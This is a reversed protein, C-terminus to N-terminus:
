GLLPEQMGTGVRRRSVAVLLAGVAAMSCGTAWPFSSTMQVVDSSALEQARPVGM